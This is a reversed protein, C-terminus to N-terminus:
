ICCPSAIPVWLTNLAVTGPGRPYVLSVFGLQSIRSLRRFPATDILHRVRATLPVDLQPPIRILDQGADLAEIEPIDYTTTARM